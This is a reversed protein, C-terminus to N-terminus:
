LSTAVFHVHDRAPLSSSSIPVYEIQYNNPTSDNYVKVILSGSTVVWPVYGNIIQAKGVPIVAKTDYARGATWSRTKNVSFSASASVGAIIANQQVSGSVQSAFSGSVSGSTSYTFTIALPAVGNRNDGSVSGVRTKTWNYTIVSPNYGITERMVLRRPAVEQEQGTSVAFASIPFVSSLMLVSLFIGIFRKM